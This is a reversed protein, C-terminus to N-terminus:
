TRYDVLIAPQEEYPGGIKLPKWSSKEAAKIMNGINKSYLWNELINDFEEIPIEMLVQPIGSYGPLDSIKPKWRLEAVMHLKQNIVNKYLSIGIYYKPHAPIDQKVFIAIEDKYFGHTCPNGPTGYKDNLLKFEKQEADAWGSSAYCLWYEYRDISSGNILDKEVDYNGCVDTFTKYNYIYICTLITIFLIVISSIIFKIRKKM